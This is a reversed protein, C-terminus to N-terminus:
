PKNEDISPMDLALFILSLGFFLMNIGVLLGIVWFASEPWGAWIIFSMIFALLGSILFLGWRRTPHLQIALVIKAIGEMIFFFTLLMTLSLLGAVPFLVLLIGFIFYLSGTFISGWFGPNVPYGKIARYLQVIGGVILLSGILLETSLTSIVPLAAALFGLITFILGEALLFNRQNNTQEV